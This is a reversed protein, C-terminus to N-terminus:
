NKLRITLTRNKGEGESESILDPFSSVALHVIRREFPSLGTITQYRGTNRVYEAKSYALQKLYDERKQKYDGVNLVLRHWEGTKGYCILGLILQLSYLTEGHYGILIGTETTDIHIRFVGEEQVVSVSGEIGLLEILSASEEKITAAVKEM